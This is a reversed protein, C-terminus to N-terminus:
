GNPLPPWPECDKKDPFLKKVTIKCQRCQRLVRGDSTPLRPSSFLGGRQKYERCEQESRVQQAHAPQPLAVVATCTIVALSLILRM